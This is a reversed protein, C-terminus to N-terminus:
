KPFDNYQKITVFICQKDKECKDDNNNNEKETKKQCNVCFLEKGFKRCKEQKKEKKEHRKCKCCKKEKKCKKYKSKKKYCSDDSSYYDSYEESSSDCDAYRCGCKTM